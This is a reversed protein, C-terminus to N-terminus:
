HPLSAQARGGGSTGPEDASSYPLNIDALAQRQGRRSVRCHVDFSDPDEWEPELAAESGRDAKWGSPILFTKASRSARSSKGEDDM